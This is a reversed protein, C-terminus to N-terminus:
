GLQEIFAEINTKTQEESYCRLDNLDANIVLTPVGLERQIRQPMGYRANSNNGCSKSDHFIIGDIKYRRVIDEIYKEKYEESRNIFIETYAKALGYFPKEPDFSEFIWSNCYTSAVICAKLELFLTSLERLKGWIPMGDWYLRYKEDEVAGIGERVRADMESKLLKYYDIALQTGRMLVAPGMHICGDFFTMPSPVNACTELVAKWLKTAELSLGVTESFKGFDLKTGSIQELKPVMSKLQAIVDTLHADEVEDLYKPSKIGLIPV